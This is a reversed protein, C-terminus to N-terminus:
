STEKLKQTTTSLFQSRLKLKPSQYHSKFRGQQGLM